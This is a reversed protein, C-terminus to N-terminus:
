HFQEKFVDWPNVQNAKKNSKEKDNELMSKTSVDDSIMKAASIKHIASEM